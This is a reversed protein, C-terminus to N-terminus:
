PTALAPADPVVALHGRLRFGRVTGGDDALVLRLQADAALATLGEVAPLQAVRRGHELDYLAPSGSPVLAMRRQLVPPVPRACPGAPELEAFRRPGQPGFLELRGDPTTVLLGTETPRSRPQRPGTLALPQVSSEGSLADIRALAWGEGSRGVTAVSGECFALAGARRLGLADLEAALGGLSGPGFVVRQARSTYVFSSMTNPHVSGTM